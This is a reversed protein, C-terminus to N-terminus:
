RALEQWVDPTFFFVSLFTEPVSFIPMQVPHISVIECNRGVLTARLASKGLIAYFTLAFFIVVFAKRLAYFSM